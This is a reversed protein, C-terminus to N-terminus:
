VPSYERLRTPNAPQRLRDCINHLVAQHSIPERPPLLELNPLNKMDACPCTQVPQLGATKLPIPLGCRACPSVEWIPSLLEAITQETGELYSQAAIYPIELETWLSEFDASYAGDGLVTVPCVLEDHGPMWLGRGLQFWYALYTKIHNISAM